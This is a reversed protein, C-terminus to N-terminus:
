VTSYQSRQLHQMPPPAFFPFRHSIANVRYLAYFQPSKKTWHEFCFRMKAIIGLLETFTVRPMSVLVYGQVM